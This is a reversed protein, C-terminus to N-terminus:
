YEIIKVKFYNHIKGAPILKQGILKEYLESNKKIKSEEGYISIPISSGSYNIKLTTGNVHFVEREENGRKYQTISKVKEGHERLFKEREDISNMIDQLNIKGGTLEFDIRGFENVM